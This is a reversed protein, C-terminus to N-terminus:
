KSPPESSKERKKQEPSETGEEEDPVEVRENAGLDRTWDTSPEFPNFIPAERLHPQWPKRKNM